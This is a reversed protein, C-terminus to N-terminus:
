FKYATNERNFYALEGKLIPRPLVRALSQKIFESIFQSHKPHQSAIRTLLGHGIFQLIGISAVMFHPTYDNLTQVDEDSNMM